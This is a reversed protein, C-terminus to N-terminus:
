EANDEKNGESRVTQSGKTQVEERKREDNWTLPVSEEGAQGVEQGGRRWLNPDMELHGTKYFLAYHFVQKAVDDGM